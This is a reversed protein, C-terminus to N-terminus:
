GRELDGRCISFQNQVRDPTQALLCAGTQVKSISTGGTRRRSVQVGDMPVSGIVSDVMQPHCQPLRAPTVQAGWAEEHGQLCQQKESSPLTTM